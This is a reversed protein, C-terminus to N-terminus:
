EMWAVGCTNCSGHMHGYSSVVYTVVGGCESPCPFASAGGKGLKKKAADAHAAAILKLFRDAKLDRKSNQDTM